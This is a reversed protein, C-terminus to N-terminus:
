AKNVKKHIIFYTIVLVLSNILLSKYFPLFPYLIELSEYYNINLITGIFIIYIIFSAISLFLINLLNYNRKKYYAIIFLSIFAFSIVNLLLSSINYSFLLSILLSYIFYYKNKNFFPYVIVLLSFVLYSTFFSHSNILLLNNIFTDLFYFVITLIIIM